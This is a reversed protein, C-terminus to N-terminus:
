RQVAGVRPGFFGAVRACIRWIVYRRTRADGSLHERLVVVIEGVDLCKGKAALDDRSVYGDFGHDATALIRSMENRGKKSLAVSPFDQLVQRVVASASPWLAEGSQFGIATLKVSSGSWGAVAILDAEVEVIPSGGAPGRFEAQVTEGPPMPFEDRLPLVVLRITNAQRNVLRLSVLIDEGGIEKVIDEVSRGEILSLTALLSGVRLAYDAAKESTPLIQVLPHGTDDSPGEFYLTKPRQCPKPTWGHGNLYKRLAKLPLRHGKDHSGSRITM